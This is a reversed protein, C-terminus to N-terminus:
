HGASNGALAASRCTRVGCLIPHYQGIHNALYKFDGHALRVANREDSVDSHVARNWRGRVPDANRDGSDTYRAASSGSLVLWPVVNGCGTNLSLIRNGIGEVLFGGSVQLAGATLLLVGTVVTVGISAGVSNGSAFVGFAIPPQALLLWRIRDCM